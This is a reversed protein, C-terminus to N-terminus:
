VCTILNIINCSRATGHETPHTVTKIVSFPLCICLNSKDFECITKRINQFVKRFNIIACLPM